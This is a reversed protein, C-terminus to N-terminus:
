KEKERDAARTNGNDDGEGPTQAPEVPREQSSTSPHVAVQQQAAEEQDAKERGPRDWDRAQVPRLCEAPLRRDRERDGSGQDHRADTGHPAIREGGDDGGPKPEHGPSSPEARLEERRRSARRAKRKQRDVQEALAPVGGQEGKGDADIADGTVGRAIISGGPRALDPGKGDDGTGAQYAQAVGTPAPEPHRGRGDAHEEELRIGDDRGFELKVSREAAQGWRSGTAAREDRHRQAQD